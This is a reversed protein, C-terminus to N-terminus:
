KLGLIWRESVGIYSAKDKDTLNIFLKGYQEVAQSYRQQADPVTQRMFYQNQWYRIEEATLQDFYYNMELNEERLKQIEQSDLELTTTCKTSLIRIDSRRLVYAQEIHLILDNPQWIRFLTWKDQHWRYGLLGGSQVFYIRRPIQDIDLLIENTEYKISRVTDSLSQWLAPEVQRYSSLKQHLLAHKM